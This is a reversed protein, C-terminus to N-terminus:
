IQLDKIRDFRKASDSGSRSSGASVDSRGGTPRAQQRQKNVAATRTAKSKAAGANTLAREGLLYKVVTERPATTGNRRMTALYEEVQNALKAVAPNRAALSEFATKDARDELQFQLAQIRHETKAELQRARYEYREEPDM